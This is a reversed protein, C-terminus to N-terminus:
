AVKFWLWFLVKLSLVQLWNLTLSQLIRWGYVLIELFIKLPPSFSYLLVTQPLQYNEEGLYLTSRESSSLSFLGTYSFRTSFQSKWLSKNWTVFQTVWFHRVLEVKSRSFPVKFWSYGWTGELELFWREARNSDGGGGFPDMYIKSLILIQYSCICVNIQLGAVDYFM